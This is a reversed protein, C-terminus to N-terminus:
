PLSALQLLVDIKVLDALSFAKMKRMVHGRHAKVTIESIGLQSGVQKNLRGSVVLAMVERERRSLLAYRDRLVQMEADRELVRRSGNIAHRVAGLLSDLRQAETLSAEGRHFAQAGRVRQVTRAIMAAIAGLTELTAQSFPRRSFMALVGVARDGVLLPHGAYAMRERPTWDLSKLYPDNLADNTVYPVGEEVISRLAQSAVPIHPRGGGPSTRAVSNAQLALTRRDKTVLWLRTAAADLHRVLAETCSGLRERLPAKISLAARVAARAEVHRTHHTARWGSEPSAMVSVPDVANLESFHTM